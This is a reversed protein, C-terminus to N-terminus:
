DFEEPYFFFIETYGSIEEPEGKKASDTGQEERKARRHRPATSMYAVNVTERGTLNALGSKAIIDKVRGTIDVFQNRASTKIQITGSM